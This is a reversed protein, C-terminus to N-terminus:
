DENIERMREALAAQVLAQLAGLEAISLDAIGSYEYHSIIVANEKLWTKLNENHEM